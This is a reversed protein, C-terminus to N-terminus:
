HICKTLDTKWAKQTAIQFTAQRPPVGPRFASLWSLSSQHHPQLLLSPNESSAFTVSKPSRTVPCPCAPTLSTDWHKSPHSAPHRAKRQALIPNASSPFEAPARQSPSMWTSISTRPQSNGAHLNLQLGPRSGAWPSLSSRGSPQPCGLSGKGPLGSALRAGPSSPEDGAVENSRRRGAGLQMHVPGCEPGLLRPCQTQCDARKLDQTTLCGQHEPFCCHNEM